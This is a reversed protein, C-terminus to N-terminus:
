ASVEPLQHGRSTIKRGGSYYTRPRHESNHPPTETLILVAEARRADQYNFPGITSYDTFLHGLRANRRHEAIRAALNMTCGIYLTRGRASLLRYVYHESRAPDQIRGYDAGAM